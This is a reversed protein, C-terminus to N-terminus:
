PTVSVLSIQERGNALAQEKILGVGPAYFKHDLGKELCSFEKTMVVGSYSGAPVTVHRVRSLVTALDVAVDPGFEQRYTRGSRPHAQMLIGPLNDGQGAEWSGETTIVNGEEDLERTDEGFYWVNGSDDEAYWDFTDEELVGDSYASDRVVRVTVGMIPRTDSTVTMVDVLPADDKFGTYTFTTGPVLPFYPNDIANPNGNADIFAAPDIAPAYPRSCAGGNVALAPVAAAAAIGVIMAASAVVAVRRRLQAPRAPRM